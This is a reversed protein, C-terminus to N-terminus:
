LDGRLTDRRQGGLYEVTDLTGKRELMTVLVKIIAHEMSVGCAYDYDIYPALAVAQAENGLYDVLAQEVEGFVRGGDTLKEM